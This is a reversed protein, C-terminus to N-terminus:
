SKKVKSLNRFLIYLVKASFNPIEEEKLYEMNLTRKSESDPQDEPHPYKEAKPMSKSLKDYGLDLTYLKIPKESGKVTM